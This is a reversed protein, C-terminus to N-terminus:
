RVRPRQAVLKPWVAFHFQFDGGEGVAFDTRIVDVSPVLFRLGIGAGTKFRNWGFGDDVALDPSTEWAIGTDTFAAVELGAAIAWKWIPIPRIATVLYQYEITVIMQNKGFLEKGLVDFEYGRISNAGGMFYQLYSPVDVGVEGTQLTTLWGMVITQRSTVPQYRRLDVDVTWFDGNGGLGGGTKLVQLENWWGNHPNRWSDRHDYGVRFGASFLNDQNDPDLTRDPKDANMQLWSFTGALRGSQGIWTGVWPTVNWSEEEFQLIEQERVLRNSDLNLSIHNGTIWPWDLLVGFTSTGGFLWRGSLSIDRGFLNMSTLAPGISFGNEETYRFAVYPVIWPMERVQYELAVGNSPETAIVNVDAFVGINELREVDRQVREVSLTDGVRTQIERRIVYEKTVNNGTITIDVVLAGEYRPPVPPDTASLGPAPILLGLILLKRLM